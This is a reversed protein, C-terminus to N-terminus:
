WPPSPLDSSLVFSRLVSQSAAVRRRNNFLDARIEQLSLYLSNATRGKFNNWIQETPNLEPAYKPFPELHLRPYDEQVQRIFPGKHIRGQDLVLIVHGHLHKLLNRLFAAVDPAKFNKKQFRTYIGMRKRFASVTLAALASIRDHKYSYHLIPTQGEPGWTRRRTPILLFGSEDLFV